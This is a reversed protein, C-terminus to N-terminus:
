TSLKRIVCKKSIHSPSRIGGYGVNGCAGRAMGSPRIERTRNDVKAKGM